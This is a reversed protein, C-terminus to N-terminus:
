GYLHYYRRALNLLFISLHTSVIYWGGLDHSISFVYDLSCRLLAAITVYLLLFIRQYYYRSPELGEMGVVLKLHPFRNPAYSASSFNKRKQSKTKDAVNEM